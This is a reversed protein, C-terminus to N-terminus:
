SVSIFGGCLLLTSPFLVQAEQGGNCFSLRELYSIDGPEAEFVQLEFIESSVVFYTVIFNIVM